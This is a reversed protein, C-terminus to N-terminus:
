IRRYMNLLKWSSFDWVKVFNKRLKRFTHVDYFLQLNKLFLKTQHRCHLHFSVVKILNNNEPSSWSSTVIHGFCLVFCFFNGWWCRTLIRFLMQRCSLKFYTTYLRNIYKSYDLYALVYYKIISKNIPGMRSSFISM